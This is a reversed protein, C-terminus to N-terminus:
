LRLEAAVEAISKFDSRCSFHERYVAARSEIMVVAHEIDRCISRGTSGDCSAIITSENASVLATTVNALPPVNRVTSVWSTSTLLSRNAHARKGSPCPFATRSDTGM